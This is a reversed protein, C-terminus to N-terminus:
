LHRYHRGLKENLNNRLDFARASSGSICTSVRLQILQRRSNVIHMIDVRGRTGYGHRGVCCEDEIRTVYFSNHLNGFNLHELAKLLVCVLSRPLFIFRFTVSSRPIVLYWGNRTLLYKGWESTCIGSASMLTCFSSLRQKSHATNDAIYGTSCFGWRGVLYCTSPITNGNFTVM